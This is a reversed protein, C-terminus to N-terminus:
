FNNTKYKILSMAIAQLIKFLASFSITNHVIDKYNKHASVCDFLARRLNKDKKAKEIVAPMIKFNSFLIALKRVLRGYPLDELVDSCNKYFNEFSKFSIGTEIITKATKIGTLIASNIGKGKFPRVLGAADGIIVYKDGFIGKALCIPFKGKFYNLDWKEYQNLHPLLNKVPPYELFKDMSISTINEGAINITLHNGKPTIAGFEIEKISPLFAHIKNGFNNMFEIGPHIKTVISQLCNPQRYNTKREFLKATGDDLGFAGIIVDALTNKNETYVMIKNFLFEIDTVRANIIQTGLNKAENLLFEDLKIRRVAFSPEEIEELSIENSDSHLVYGDITRQILWSPFEIGLGKVFIDTIPPSLVGACQNFQREGEYIKGEYIIVDIRIRYQASLKKLAIACASGAPGGGVIVVVLRNM